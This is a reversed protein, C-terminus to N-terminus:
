KKKRTKSGGVGYRPRVVGVFRAEEGLEGALPREYPIYEKQESQVSVGVCILVFGILGSILFTDDLKNDM